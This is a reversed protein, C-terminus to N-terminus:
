YKTYQKKALYGNQMIGLDNGALYLKTDAFMEIKYSSVTCVIDNIYLLFLLPSGM